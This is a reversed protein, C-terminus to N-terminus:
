SKGRDVLVVLFEVANYFWRYFYLCDLWVLDVGRSGGYIDEMALVDVGPLERLDDAADLVDLFRTKVRRALRKQRAKGIPENMLM